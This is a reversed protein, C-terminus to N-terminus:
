DPIKRVDTPLRGDMRQSGTGLFAQLRKVKSGSTSGFRKNSSTPSGTFRDSYMMPPIAVHEETELIERM